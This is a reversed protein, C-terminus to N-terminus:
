FQSEVWNLSRREIINDILCNFRNVIGITSKIKKLLLFVSNFRFASSQIDIADEKRNNKINFEVQEILAMHSQIEEDELKQLEKGKPDESQGKSKAEMLSGVKHNLILIGELHDEFNKCEDQGM